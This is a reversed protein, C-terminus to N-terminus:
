INKMNTMLINKQFLLYFKLLRLYSLKVKEMLYFIAHFEIKLHSQLM